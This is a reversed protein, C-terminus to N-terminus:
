WDKPFMGQDDLFGIEDESYVAPLKYTGDRAAQEPGYYRAPFSFKGAPSPLWNSQKDPGPSDKQVQITLWGHDGYKLGPTPCGELRGFPFAPLIGPGM